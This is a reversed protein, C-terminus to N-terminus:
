KSRPIPLVVAVRAMLLRDALNVGDSGMSCPHTLIIAPGAHEL